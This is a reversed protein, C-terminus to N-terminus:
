LPLSEHGPSAGVSAFSSPKGTLSTESCNHIFKSIIVKNSLWKYGGGTMAAKKETHLYSGLLIPWHTPWWSSPSTINSKVKPGIALSRRPRCLFCLNFFIRTWTPYIMYSSQVASKKYYSSVTAYYINDGFFVCTIFPIVFWLQITESSSQFRNTNWVIDM